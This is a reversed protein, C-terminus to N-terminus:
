APAAVASMTQTVGWAATVAAFATPNISASAAVVSVMLRARFTMFAAVTAGIGEGSDWVMADVLTFALSTPSTTITAVSRMGRASESPHSALLASATSMATIPAVATPTWVVHRAPRIRASMHCLRRASVSVRETAFGAALIPRAALTARRRRCVTAARASSVHAAPTARSAAAAAPPLRAGPIVRMELAAAPAAPAPYPNAAITLPPVVSRAAAHRATIRAVVCAPSGAAVALSARAPVHPPVSSAAPVAAPTTMLIATRPCIAAVTRAVSPTVAVAVM